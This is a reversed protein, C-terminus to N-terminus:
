NDLDFLSNKGSSNTYISIYNGRSDKYKEIHLKHFQINNTKLSNCESISYQATKKEEIHTTGIPFFTEFPVESFILEKKKQILENCNNSTKM